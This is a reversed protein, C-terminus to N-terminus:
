VNKNKGERPKGVYNFRVGNTALTAFLEKLTINKIDEWKGICGGAQDVAQYLSELMEIGSNMIFSMDKGTM